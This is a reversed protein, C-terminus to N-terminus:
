ADGTPDPEDRAQAESAERSREADHAHEEAAAADDQLGTWTTHGGAYGELPRPGRQAEVELDKQEREELAPAGARAAAGHPGQGDSTCRRQGSMPVRRVARLARGGARRRAPWGGARRSSAAEDARHPALCGRGCPAKRLAAPGPFSARGM